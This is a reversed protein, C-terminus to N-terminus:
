DSYQELMRNLREAEDSFSRAAREASVNVLIGIAALIGFVLQATRRTRNHVAVSAEILLYAGWALSVITGVYPILNLVATIPSIATLAAACRFSAEYDEESGMLKWIVFLIGGGIFLGIVTFIPVFIIAALGYALFGVPSGFFSLLGALIGATLSMVIAFILPDVFGGTKPMERFYRAPQKIITLAAAIIANIDFKPGQAPAPQPQVPENVPTNEQDSM